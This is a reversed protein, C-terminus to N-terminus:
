LWPKRGDGRRSGGESGQDRLNEKLESIQSELAAKVSENQVHFQATVEGGRSVIQIHVTGLSAPHLQMELQDMGPRLQLKMYDLIQDM